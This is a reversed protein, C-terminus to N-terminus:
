MKSQENILKTAITEDQEIAVEVAKKALELLQKSEDKLKFSQKIKQEIQTQIDQNIIPILVQKIESPKWHKIISGGADRQSQMQVVASNLILTLYENFVKHKYENKVKLHLLAGSTIYGADKKLNYAIGVTGDKSLLITNKKPQLKDLEGVEFIDPSIHIDPSSVEFKTLNSVRVFPIGNEQYANSGPEISKQINVINNLTDYKTNKIKDIIDDYKPQYYESDLRGSDGFSESFSKIAINKNSPQFNLLGLETLLLNEAQKYLTKSQKRLTFSKSFINEIKDNLSLVSNPIPLNDFVFEFFRPHATGYQSCSLITQVEKTLCYAVLLSASIKTTPSYVLYESSFVQQYDRKEVVAFEQLYSRLRSIIFDNEKALKRKGTIHKSVEIDHIFNGLTHTLDYSIVNKVDSVIDTKLEFYDSVKKNSDLKKLANIKIISNFESGLILNDLNLYNVESIELGGM